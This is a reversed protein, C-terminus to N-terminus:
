LSVKDHLFEALERTEPYHPTISKLYHLTRPINQLYGPKGDRIYLRSFIGAVKLHRQVGMLDFWKLFTQEDAGTLTDDDSIQARWALAWARVREPPWDIYCDRLLSILDYTLPGCVADQYDIVGLQDEDTLMLNRSHYDRHVFVQPQELANEVLRAFVRDLLTHDTHTMPVARRKDLFWERFLEMEDTLLKRDYPPLGTAPAQRIVALTDFAKQYLADANNHNLRHALLTDGFDSLLFFGLDLSCYHIHPVHLGAAELLHTVNIFTENSEKEPPADVAIYQEDDSQFRFYRRFSADGSVPTLSFHAAGLMEGIWERLQTLRPDTNM